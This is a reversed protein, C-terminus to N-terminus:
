SKQRCPAVRGLHSGEWSTDRNTAVIISQIPDRIQYDFTLVRFNIITDIAMCISGQYKNYIM